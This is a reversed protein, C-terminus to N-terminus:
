VSRRSGRPIDINFVKAKQTAKGPNVSRLFLDVIYVGTRLDDVYQQNDMLVWSVGQRTISTVRSPLDCEDERDTWVLWFNRALHLAAMKGLAPPEQGYTYSVDIGAGPISTLQLTNRNVIVYEDTDLIRGDSLDTISGIAKIPRGSLRIRSSQLDAADILYVGHGNHAYVGPFNHISWSDYSDRTPVYQETVITGVHYKRGSLAWLLQSTSQCAALALEYEKLLEEDSPDIDELVLAPNLQRPLVWLNDEIPM